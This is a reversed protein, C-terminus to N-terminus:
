LPSELLSTDLARVSWSKRHQDCLGFEEVAQRHGISAYGKNKEFSFQPHDGSYDVMMRDRTVKAVVSAAAVVISIRDAKVMTIPAHHPTFNITGDVIVAQPRLSLQAFAREAALRLAVAIGLADCESPWAHGVGHDVLSDVLPVFLRERQSESLLKSDRIGKPMAKLSSVDIVAVGVSLPGAWAGRGVEDVGAVTRVGDRFLRLETARGPNLRLRRNM